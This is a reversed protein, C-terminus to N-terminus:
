GLRINNRSDMANSEWNECIARAVRRSKRRALKKLNRKVRPVQFVPIDYSKGERLKQETPMTNITRSM